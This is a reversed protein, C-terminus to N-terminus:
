QRRPRQYYRRLGKLGAVENNLDNLFTVVNERAVVIPTADAAIVDYDDLPALQGDFQINALVGDDLTLNDLDELNFNALLVEPSNFADFSVLLDVGQQTLLLNSATLGEGSFALTDFDDQIEESPNDDQSVGVFDAITIDEGLAVPKVTNSGSSNNNVTVIATDSSVNGSTDTVTLTVTNDGLDDSTFTTKDLSLSAIGVNDSSGSDIAVATISANGDNDLDVTINQTLVTPATTDQVTITLTQEASTDLGGNSIGGDDQVQVTFTSSGIVNIAPTYTLNGNADLSPTTTFIAPNSINSVWYTATQTAEGGGPNFSAWNSLTTAGSGVEVAAPNSATFSPQDNVANVTVTGTSVTNSFATDNGNTSTDIGTDGNDSGDTTDWARFQLIADGNYDANPVFRIRTETELAIQSLSFSGQASTTDDGLFIFNPTEYPDIAGVFSTYDRLLGNLIPTGDASVTYTDGQVALTYHTEATTNFSVNEAAVFTPGGQAFINGTTASTQQFGVEIAKSTDQSVAIISFGARSQNTRSEELLQMTFSIEYGVTNDLTPFDPNVLSTGFYNSYGAYINDDATTDLTTGNLDATETGPSFPNVLNLNTFSLDGQSNPATGLTNTYLSSAGLTIANSDSASADLNQWSSGGDTSYQWTGNTNDVGTIAIGEPDFNADTILGSALAAITTGLNAADIVDENIATFTANGSLVPASLITPMHQFKEPPLYVSVIGAVKKPSEKFLHM